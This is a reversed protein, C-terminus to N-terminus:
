QEWRKKENNIDQQLIANIDAKAGKLIYVRTGNERALPNNLHGFLRVAEFLPQEKKREPDDDNADQVLIINTYKKSLDIWNVYDANMTVAQLGPISTYYNIAGAQGYNDCLVLTNGTASVENYAKDALRTIAKWGLMDAFDQPMNHEKGDEWRSTGKFEKIVQAMEKPPYIPFAVMAMPIFLLIPLAVLVPKLFRKKGTQLLEELYVAGFAIYVPYLGIAYYGKAKLGIFIGLTIFFSVFFVRYKKFPVYLLFSILAALIVFFSGIFFLLQEKIFDVRNVNVLQTESLEQMHHLVPWNNEYQWYLNPSIIILALVGAAYFHGNNLIRSNRTFLLAPFIGAILFVINYKNLFGIGFGIAMIYLWRNQNTNIHRILAYCLFTWALVDFSNPQFLLNIRTLASFILATTALLQAYIGGKLEKITNWVIIITVAGFLAPFFRIWFVDNGLLWILYSFWSTVPPVSLYGWALHHAQDLHLYEDRQLDYDPHFLLFQVVIKLIVFLLLLVTNRM